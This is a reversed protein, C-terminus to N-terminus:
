YTTQLIYKIISSNNLELKFSGFIYESQNLRYVIQSELLHFEAIAIVFLGLKGRAGILKAKEEGKEGWDM